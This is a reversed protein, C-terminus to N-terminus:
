RLWGPIIAPDHPNDSERVYFFACWNPDVADRIVVPQSWDIHEPFVIQGSPSSEAINALDATWLCMSGKSKKPMSDPIIERWRDMVNPADLYLGANGAFQYGLSTKLSAFKLMDNAVIHMKSHYVAETKCQEILVPDAPIHLVSPAVSELREIVLYFRNTVIALNTELRVSRCWPDDKPMNKLANTLRVFTDCPLVHEMDEGQYFSEM